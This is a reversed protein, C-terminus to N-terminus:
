IIMNTSLISIMMGKHVNHLLYFLIVSWETLQENVNMSGPTPVWVCCKVDYQLLQIFSLIRKPSITACYGTGQLKIPGRACNWHESKVVVWRVCCYVLMVTWTHEMALFEATQKQQHKKRWSTQHRLISPHDIYIAGDQRSLFVAPLSDGCFQSTPSAMSKAINQSIHSLFCGSNIGNLCFLKSNSSEAVKHNGVTEM